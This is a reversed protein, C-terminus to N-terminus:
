KYLLSTRGDRKNNKIVKVSGMCPKGNHIATCYMESGTPYSNHPKFGTFSMAISPSNPEM